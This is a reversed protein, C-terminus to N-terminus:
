MASTANRSAALACRKGAGIESAGAGSADALGFTFCRFGVAFLSALEAWVFLEVDCDDPVLGDPVAFFKVPGVGSYGASAALCFSLPRPM